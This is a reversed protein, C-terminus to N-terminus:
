RRGRRAPAPPPADSRPKAYQAWLVPLTKGTEKQWLTPVYRGDRLAKDLAAGSPQARPADGPTGDNHGCAALGAGAGLVALGGLFSRRSPGPSPQRDDNDAVADHEPADHM